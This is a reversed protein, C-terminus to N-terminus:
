CAGHKRLCLCAFTAGPERAKIARQVLAYSEKMANADGESFTGRLRKSAKDYVDNWTKGTNRLGSEIRKQWTERKDGEFKKIAKLDQLYRHQMERIHSVENWREFHKQDAKYRAAPNGTVGRGTAVKVQAEALTLAASIVWKPTLKPAEECFALADLLAISIGKEYSVRCLEIQETLWDEDAKIDV